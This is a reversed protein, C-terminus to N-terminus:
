SIASTALLATEVLNGSSTQKPFGMPFVWPHSTHHSCKGVILEMLELTEM